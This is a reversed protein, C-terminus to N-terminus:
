ERGFGRLSRFGPRKIVENLVEGFVGFFPSDCGVSTPPLIGPMRRAAM